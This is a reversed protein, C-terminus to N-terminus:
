KMVIVITASLKEIWQERMESELEDTKQIYFIYFISYKGFIIRGIFHQDAEPPCNKIKIEFLISAEETESPLGRNIVNWVVNDPCPKTMQETISGAFSDIDPSYSRKFAQYTFLETWNNIDEGPRVFETLKGVQDSYSYGVKWEELDIPITIFDSGGACSNLAACGCVLLFIVSNFLRKM